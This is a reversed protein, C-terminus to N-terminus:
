RAMYAIQEGDKILEVWWGHDAGGHWDLVTSYGIM